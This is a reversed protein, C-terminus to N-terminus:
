LRPSLIIGTVPAALATGPKERLGYPFFGYEEPFFRAIWGTPEM